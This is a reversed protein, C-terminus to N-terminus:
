PFNKGLLVGNGPRITAPLKDWREFVTTSATLAHWGVSTKCAPPQPYLTLISKQKDM